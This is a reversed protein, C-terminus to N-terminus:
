YVLLVAFFPAVSTVPKGKVGEGARNDGAVGSVCNWRVEGWEGGRRVGWVAVVSEKGGLEGEKARKEGKGGVGSSKGSGMGRIPVPLSMAYGGGRVGESHSSGAVNGNWEMTVRRLSLEGLASDFVLIDQVPAVM